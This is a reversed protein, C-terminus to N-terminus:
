YDDLVAPHLIQSLTRIKGLADQTIEQVEQLEARLPSDPPLSKREARHLM